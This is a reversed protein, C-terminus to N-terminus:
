IQTRGVPFYGELLSALTDVGIVVHTRPVGDKEHYMKIVRAAFVQADDAYAIGTLADSIGKGINDWDPKGVHPLLGEPDTRRNLRQPRPMVAYVYLVVGGLLPKVGAKEAYFAVKNKWEVSEKPDYNMAFARGTAKSAVVRTRHRAQGQPKGPITFRYVTSM